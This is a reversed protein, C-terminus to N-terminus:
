APHFPTVLDFIVNADILVNMPRAQPALYDARPDNKRRLPRL